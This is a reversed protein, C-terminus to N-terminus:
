EEIKYQGSSSALEFSWKPAPGLTLVRKQPTFLKWYVCQDFFNLPFTHLLIGGEFGFNTEFATPSIVVKELGCGELAGIKQKLIERPDESGVFTSNPNELYWGCCYIWLYWEGYLKGRKNVVPEGFEMTIFSGVGLKVNWAKYGLLPQVIRYIAEINDRTANM